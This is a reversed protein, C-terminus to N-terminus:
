EVVEAHGKLRLGLETVVTTMLHRASTAVMRPPLMDDELHGILEDLTDRVHSLEARLWESEQRWDAGDM